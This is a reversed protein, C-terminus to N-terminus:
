PRKAPHRSQVAAGIPEGLVVPDLSKALEELDMGYIKGAARDPEVGERVLTLFERLKKVGGRNEVLEWAMLFASYGARRYMERDKPADPDPEGALIFDTIAPSFLLSEEGRFEAMYNVLHVGNEAFYEVLGYHLWPPLDSPLRASLLWDAVLAFAAHGDLTRAQLIGYPEIIVRNGELKHLRWVDQGTAERYDPINDPSFVHLTDVAGLGTLAAFRREALDLTELLLLFDCPKYARNQHTVFCRWALRGPEIVLGARPKVVKKDCFARPGYTQGDEDSLVQWDPWWYAHMHDPFGASELEEPLCRPYTAEPKLEPLQNPHTPLQALAGTAMAPLGLALALVLALLPGAIWLRGM